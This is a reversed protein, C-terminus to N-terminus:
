EKIYEKICSAYNSWGEATKYKDLCGTPVYITRNTHNDKFHYSQAIYEGEGREYTSSICHLIPVDISTVKIESLSTCGYFAANYITKINSPITFTKLSTCFAFAGPYQKLNVEYFGGGISELCSNESIHVENLSECKYFAAPGIQTLGDPIHFERLSSCYMFAGAVKISSTAIKTGDIFTGEIVKLQSKEELDVYELSSCFAFACNGIVELSEPLLIRRLARCYTFAGNYENKKNDHDGITWPITDCGEIKRLQSGTFKVIELSSCNNFAGSKIVEINEPLQIRWLNSCGKFADESIERLETFYKLEEFSIISLNGTFVNNLSSISEAESYSLEGDHNEDWNRVCLAEVALDKFIITTTNHKILTIIQGDTLNFYVYEDDQTISQIISDGDEGDAGNAGNLGNNGTAKGLKQWTSGNDYSLYWYGDEIKLQPTVGDKGDKGNTGDKGNEGDQGDKGDSGNAGDQGDEGDKGTAPIMNGNDDLLWTGDLTWYYRGDTDQKVGIKPTYGDKGDKGDTGNQGDKGDAGNAGDKGNKGHYITISGSKAFTITYGIEKNGEMIPAINVVYDNSQLAIIITQLSIINTNMQNCLTELRTIRDEHNNIKEWIESDDFKSCGLLTLLSLTLLLIRKM